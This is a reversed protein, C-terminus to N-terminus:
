QQALATPLSSPQPTKSSQREAPQSLATLSPIIQPNYGRITDARIPYGCTKQARIASASIQMRIDAFDAIRKKEYLSWLGGRQFPGSPVLVLDIISSGCVVLLYYSYLAELLM